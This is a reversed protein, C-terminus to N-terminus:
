RHNEGIKAVFGRDFGSLDKYFTIDTIGKKQIYDALSAKQDYGMECCLICPAQQYAIDIIDKLVEDGSEGGFLAIAPEYSLNKELSASNAIYPPNSIIIDFKEEIGKIYPTHHFTIKEEVQFVKANIKAIELAENSIDTATIRVNKLLYAIMISIVGSGVGIELIHPEKYHRAEQLIKDILIETEPRPILAGKKIFFEESYFSVKQTIYEIPEKKYAREILQFYGEPHTLPDNEILILSLEEKQLYHSLLIRAEKGNKLRKSGQQLAEKITM